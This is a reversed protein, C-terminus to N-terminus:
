DNCLARILNPSVGLGVLFKRKDFTQSQTIFWVGWAIKWDVILRYVLCQLLLFEFGRRGDLFGGKIILRYFFLLFARLFPPASYYFSRPTDFFEKRGEFLFDYKNLFYKLAERSSYNNHKNIWASTSILSHDIIQVDVKKVQGLVFFKEDMVSKDIRAARRKILRLCSREGNGGFRLLKGRYFFTRKFAVGDIDPNDSIIKDLEKLKGHEIYEDCDLRLVWDSRFPVNKLAWQIQASQTIFRNKLIFINKGTVEDLCGDDSFSDLIYIYVGKGSLRSLFRRLHLSENYTLVLVDFKM